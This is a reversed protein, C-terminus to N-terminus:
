LRKDERFPFKGTSMWVSGTGPHCFFRVLFIHEKLASSNITHWIYIQTDLLLRM